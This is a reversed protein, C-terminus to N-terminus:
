RQKNSSAENQLQKRVRDAESRLARQLRPNQTAARTSELMGLQSRLVTLKPVPRCDASPSPELDSAVKCASKPTATAIPTAAARRFGRKRIIGVVAGIVNCRPDIAANREPVRRLVKRGEFEALVLFGPQLPGPEVLLCDDDRLGETHLRQGHVRFARVARTGAQRTSATLESLVSVEELDSPARLVGTLNLLRSRGAKIGVREFSAGMTAAAESMAFEESENV